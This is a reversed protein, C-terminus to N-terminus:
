EAKEITKLSYVEHFEVRCNKNVCHIERSMSDENFEDAVRVMGSCIPCKNPDKKYKAIQEKTFPKITSNTM